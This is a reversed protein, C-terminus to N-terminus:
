FDRGLNEEGFRPFGTAKDEWYEWPVINLPVGVGADWYVQAQEMTLPGLYVRGM